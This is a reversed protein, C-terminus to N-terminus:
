HITWDNLFAHSSTTTHVRIRCSLFYYNRHYRVHLHNRIADVIVRGNLCQHLQLTNFLRNPIFNTILNKMFLWEMPLSIRNRIAERPPTVALGIDVKTIDGRGNLDQHTLANYLARM